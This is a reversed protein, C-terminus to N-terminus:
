LDEEYNQINPVVIHFMTQQIDFLITKSLLFSKASPYYNSPISIALM